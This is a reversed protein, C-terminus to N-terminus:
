ESVSGRAHNRPSVGADVLRKEWTCRLTHLGGKLGFFRFLASLRSSVRQM